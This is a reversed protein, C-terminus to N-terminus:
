RPAVTVVAEPDASGPVALYEAATGTQVPRAAPFPTFRAADLDTQSRGKRRDYVKKAVYGGALLLGLPGFARRAIMPALAGILLGRGGGGPGALRRGISAGIMRGIM